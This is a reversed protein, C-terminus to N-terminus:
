TTSRVGLCVVSSHHLDVTNIMAVADIAGGSVTEARRILLPLRRVGARVVLTGEPGITEVTSPQLLLELGTSV